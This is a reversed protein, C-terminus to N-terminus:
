FLASEKNYLSCYHPAFTARLTYQVNCLAFFIIFFTRQYCINTLSGYMDHFLLFLMKIFSSAPIEKLAFFMWSHWVCLHLWQHKYFYLISILVRVNSVWRESMNLKLYLCFFLTHFIPRKSSQANRTLIAKFMAVPFVTLVHLFVFRLIETQSLKFKTKVHTNSLFM